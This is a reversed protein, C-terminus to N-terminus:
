RKYGESTSAENIREAVDCWSDCWEYVLGFQCIIYDLDSAAIESIFKGHFIPNRIDRYFTRMREWLAPDFNKLSFSSDILGPVANFYCEATGRAGPIKFPDSLKEAIEETLQERAGLEIMAANPIWSEIGMVLRQVLVSLGEEKGRWAFKGCTFEDSSRDELSDRFAQDELIRKYHRFENRQNLLPLTSIRIKIM